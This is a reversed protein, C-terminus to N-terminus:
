SRARCCRTKLPLRPKKAPRKTRRGRRASVSGTATPRPAAGPAACCRRRCCRPRAARTARRRISCREWRQSASPTSTADPVPTTRRARWASAGCFAVSGCVCVASPPPEFAGCAFCAGTFRDMVPSFPHERGEQVYVMRRNGRSFMRTMTAFEALTHGRVMNDARLWAKLFAVATDTDFLILRDTTPFVCLMGRHCGMAPVKSDASAKAGEIFVFGVPGRAALPPASPNHPRATLTTVTADEAADRRFGVCRTLGRSGARLTEFARNPREETAASEAECVFVRLHLPTETGPLTPYPSDAGLRGYQELVRENSWGPHARRIAAGDGYPVLSWGDSSLRIM